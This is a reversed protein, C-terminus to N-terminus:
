TFHLVSKGTKIVKKAIAIHVNCRSGFLWLINSVVEIIKRDANYNFVLDLVHGSEVLSSSM